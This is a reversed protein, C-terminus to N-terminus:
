NFITLLDVRESNGILKFRVEGAENTVEAIQHTTLMTKDVPDGAVVKTSADKSFYVNEAENKANIFTVFPYGNTNTRVNNAVQVFGKAQAFEQISQVVM